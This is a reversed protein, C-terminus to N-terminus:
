SSGCGKVNLSAISQEAVSSGSIAFTTKCERKFFVCFTPNIKIKSRFTVTTGLKVVRPFPPTYEVDVGAGCTSTKVDLVLGLDDVAGLIKKEVENGRPVTARIRTHVGETKESIEKAQNGPSRLRPNARGDCRYGYTPRDMGSQLSMSIVAIGKVNLKKIVDARTILKGNVCTPEHQPSDSYFIVIKRSDKRWRISADTAVKYLAVLGAEPLDRGKGVTLEQTAKLTSETQINVPVINRFGDGPIDSEDKFEGLGLALDTSRLKLGSILSAMQRALARIDNIMGGTTDLLM